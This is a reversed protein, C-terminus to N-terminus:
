SLDISFHFPIKKHFSPLIENFHKSPGINFGVGKLLIKIEDQPDHTELDSVTV